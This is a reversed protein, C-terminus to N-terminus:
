AGRYKLSYLKIKIGPYPKADVVEDCALLQCQSLLLDINTKKLALGDFVALCFVEDKEMVTELGKVAVVEPFMDMNM